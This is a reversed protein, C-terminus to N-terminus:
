KKWLARLARTREPKQAKAKQEAQFVRRERFDRSKMEQGKLELVVELLSTQCQSCKCQRSARLERKIGKSFDLSSVNSM